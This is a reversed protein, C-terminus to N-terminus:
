NAHGFVPLSKEAAIKQSEQEKLFYLIGLEGMKMGYLLAAVLHDGHEGNQEKVKALFDFNDTCGARIDHFQFFLKDLNKVTEIGFTKIAWQKTQDEQEATLKYDM